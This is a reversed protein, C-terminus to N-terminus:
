RRRKAKQIHWVHQHFTNNNNALAVMM